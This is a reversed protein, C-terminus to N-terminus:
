DSIINQGLEILTKNYISRKDKHNLSICMFKKTFTIQELTMVHTHTHTHPM